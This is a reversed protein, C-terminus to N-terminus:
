VDESKNNQDKIVLLNNDNEHIVLDTNKKRKISKSKFCDDDDAKKKRPNINFLGRFEKEIDLIYEKLGWDYGKNEKRLIKQQFIKKAWREFDNLYKFYVLKVPSSAERNLGLEKTVSAWCGKKSVKVYGGREKVLSFLKYMDLEKGSVLVLGPRTGDQSRKENMFLFFLQNFLWEQAPKGHLAGNDVHDEAPCCDSESFEGVEKIALSSGSPGNPFKSCGEM